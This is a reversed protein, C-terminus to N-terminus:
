ASRNGGQARAPQLEHIMWTPLLFRKNINLPSKKTAESIKRAM